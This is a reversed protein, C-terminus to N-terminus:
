ASQSTWQMGGEALHALVEARLRQANGAGTSRLMSSRRIRYRLLSRPIIGGLHGADRLQLYFLWDEYSTLDPSYAFGVDFLYRRLLASASGAVNQHDALRSWNGLPAYGPDADDIQRGDEDVFRSWTGVYAMDDDAVLARVCAEVFDPELLDDADLPLVFRGRAAAVGLNRAAGLGRNRQTVLRVPLQDLFADQERLSGDNVVITELNPYTQAAVSAITEEVFADLEYYPIVVSVLPARTRRRPRAARAGRIADLYRGLIMAPDTLRGLLRSPEGSRGLERVQEPEAVLPELLDCLADVSTDRALWGSEGPRVFTVLGGVPTAIVPRDHQLAERAVNPWCEWLSPVVVADHAVIMRGVEERPVPEHLDFREDGATMMALHSRMSTGLPGTPTDGGLLTLRWDDHALSALARVLNHVGKRREMRGLYLLKLAGEGVVEPAPHERQILFADPIEVAPALARAGYYREYTALVDGGPWLLRDAKALCHREMEYIAQTELEQGQHGNLVSVIETTTHLRVAVITNRLRPDGTRRAQVTVFGEALYDPFEVLDPGGEPFAEVLGAYLRHSWGQLWSYYYGREPPPEQVFVVRVGPAFVPGEAQLAEYRERHAATTILTVDAGQSLVGSLAHVIPAIGGGIFPHLERTCLAISPAM